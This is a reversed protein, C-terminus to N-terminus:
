NSPMSPVTPIVDDVTSSSMLNCDDNVKIAFGNGAADDDLLEEKVKDLNMGAFGDWKQSSYNWINIKLIKCDGWFNTDTHYPMVVLNWGKYLTPSGNKFMYSNTIDKPMLWTFTREKDFYVWSGAFNNEYRSEELAALKEDYKGKNEVGYVKGTKPYVGYFEKVKPNFTFKLANAMFDTNEANNVPTAGNYGIFSFYTSMENPIINWGKSYTKELVFYDQGNWTYDPLAAFTFSLTLLLGLSLFLYKYM